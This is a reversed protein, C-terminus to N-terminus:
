KSVGVFIDKDGYNNKDAIDKAEELVKDMGLTNYRSRFRFLEKNEISDYVIYERRLELGEWNEVLDKSGWCDSPIQNIVYRVIDEIYRKNERDARMIAESLNDKLVSMVFDGGPIAECAWRDISEKTRKPIDYNDGNFLNSYSDYYDELM